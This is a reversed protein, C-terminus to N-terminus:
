LKAAIAEAMETTSAKGGMDHTRTTGDALVAAVANQLSVAMGHEGLWNLMMKAALIAATPNIRHQGAYRPASGHTPQFIAYHRGINGSCGFGLGGVLEAAIDSVIDGYFNPAVIVKFEQPRRALPRCCPDPNKGDFDGTSM